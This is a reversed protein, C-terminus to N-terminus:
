RSLSSQGPAGPPMYDEEMNKRKGKEILVMLVKAPDTTSANKVNHEQRMPQYFAEGAKFSVPKQGDIELTVSGSIVYALENGRQGRKGIEAGPSLEALLITGHTRRMRKLSAKLLVTRKVPEPQANLLNTGIVLTVISALVVGFLVASRKM